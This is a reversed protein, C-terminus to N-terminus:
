INLPSNEMQAMQSGLNMANYIGSDPESIWYSFKEANEAIFEKSGDTSGGDVVIWEFDRFSQMLVSDFTKRLGKINNRNVTIISLRM